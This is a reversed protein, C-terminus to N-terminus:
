DNPSKLYVNVHRTGRPFYSSAVVMPGLRVVALQLVLGEAPPHTREQQGGDGGARQM